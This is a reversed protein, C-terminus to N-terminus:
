AIENQFAVLTADHVGPVTLLADVINTRQQSLRLEYTAEVGGRTVTRSKVKMQPVKHLISAVDKSARDEFHVVLLYNEGAKSSFLSLAFLVVAIILTGIVAYLVYNAGITIGAAIAWFMYVTDMPDKIATRFRVISLAGVMGLSLGISSSICMIIMSTVMTLMILSINFSHSYLVGRYTKKYVYFILLGILFASLLTVLVTPVTLNQRTLSFGELVSKKFLDSASLMENQM